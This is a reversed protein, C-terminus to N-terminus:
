GACSTTTPTAFASGPMGKPGSFWEVHAASTAIELLEIVKHAMYRVEPYSPQELHNTTVMQPSIWRTRVAELVDPYYHTVFEHAVHARQM